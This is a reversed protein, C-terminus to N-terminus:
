GAQRALTRMPWGGRVAQRVYVVAGDHRPVVKERLVLRKWGSGLKEVDFALVHGRQEAPLRGSQAWWLCLLCGRVLSPPGCYREDAKASPQVGDSQGRPLLLRKQLWSRVCSCKWGGCGAAVAAPM